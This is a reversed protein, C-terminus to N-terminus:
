QPCCSSFWRGQCLSHPRFRLAHMQGIREGTVENEVLKADIGALGISSAYARVDANDWASVPKTQFAMNAFASKSGTESENKQKKKM